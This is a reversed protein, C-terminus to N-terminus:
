RRLARLAVGVSLLRAEERRLGANLFTRDGESLAAAITSELAKMSALVAPGAGDRITLSRIEAASLIRRARSTGANDGSLSVLPERGDLFHLHVVGAGLAELQSLRRLEAEADCALIVRGRWAEGLGAMEALLKPGATQVAILPAALVEDWSEAAWGGRFLNAARSATRSSTAQIPGLSKTLKPFRAFLNHRTPGSTILSFQHVQKM